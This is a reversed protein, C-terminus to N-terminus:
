NRHQYVVTRHVDLTVIDDLVEFLCKRRGFENRIPVLVLNCRQELVLVVEM